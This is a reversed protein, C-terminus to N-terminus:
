RIQEEKERNKWWAITRQLGDEISVQQWWGLAELKSADMYQRDIETITRVETTIHDTRFVNGKGDLIEIPLGCLAVLKQIVKYVGEPGSGGVNYAEGDQGREIITRYAEVEDDIYVFEREMAWAQEYIVAPEGRLLRRITGPVVRTEDLDGPGYINSSRVVRVPLGYTTFYDRAIIDASVKSASYPGFARLPQTEVYPIPGNGYVKDTTAVVVAQIAPPYDGRRLRCADLLAVMGMVNTQYASWPDEQCKKVISHAAQHIVTDIDYDVLVRYLLDRDTVDGFEVFVKDIDEPFEPWGGPAFSRMLGVVTHGDQAFRRALAGGVFGGAGTILVSSM